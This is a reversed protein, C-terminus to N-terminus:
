SVLWKAFMMWQPTQSLALRGLQGVVVFALGAMFAPHVRRNKVTDFVICALIVLDTLAFFVLPGGNAVFEFPLRAMAPTLMALSGLLMLRKHWASRKRLVIAAGALVAFVFMEGLPLVLFVLPSLGIPASGAKAGAIGIAVGVGVVLAAVLVGAVGMKRHVQTRGTAVLRVQVLFLAFWATMVLAHVHKLANLDPTGFAGKLYYTPAFGAFVTLLAVIAAWTYMRREGPLSRVLSADLPTSAM